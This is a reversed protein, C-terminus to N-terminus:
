RSAPNRVGPGPKAAAQRSTASTAAASSSRMNPVPRPTAASYLRIWCSPVPGGWICFSRRVLSRSAALNLSPVRVLLTRLAATFPPYSLAAGYIPFLRRSELPIPGVGYDGCNSVARAIPRRVPGGAGGAGGM